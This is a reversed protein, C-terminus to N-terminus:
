FRSEVIYALIEVNVPDFTLVSWMCPAKTKEFSALASTKVSQPPQQTHKEEHDGQGLGAVSCVFKRHHLNVHDTLFVFCDQLDKNHFWNISM